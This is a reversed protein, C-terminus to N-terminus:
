KRKRRVLFITALLLAFGPIIWVFIKRLLDAGHGTINLLNDRPQPRPTYIPFRGYDLWSYVSRAYWSGAVRVNSFRDADGFVVIRQERKNMKRTLAVATTFSALKRDGAAPNFEPLTSDVVLAGVKLWAKGAETELLPHAQFGTTDSFELAAAGPMLPRATDGYQWEKRAVIALDEDAMNLYFPTMYPFIMHPMEHQSPQVLTGEMLKTGTREIVPNVVQQKGPEGFGGLTGGNSIYNHIRELSKPSMATKPDAIV